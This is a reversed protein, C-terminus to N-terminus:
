ALTIQHEAASLFGTDIEIGWGPADSVEVDGGVVIPVPHYVDKVWSDDEISWEQYQSISPFAMALHLTFVQILSLNAAHPTCPIGAAEAMHVARRARAMGGIYGIDPQIIDVAGIAIIRHIQELVSDQEGAAVPIDLVDAVKALNEIQQYPCPEEFHYYGYEELMRGTRIAQSVSYAGNADANIDVDDGLAERITPILKKTRGPAADSDRGNVEGIRVKVCRFGYRDVLDRLRAGEDEPSIERSMSSAYVPVKERAKGGLLKYVPQSVSKGLLDWIATDIGCLARLSLSSPFKYTKRVFEEALVDIDWPDKGIFFPAVMKHLIHTSLDAGHPSVQGYGEHGDETRVRVVAIQPDRQFTEISQIRM